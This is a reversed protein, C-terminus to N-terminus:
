AARRAAAAPVWGALVVALAGWDTFRSMLIEVGQRDKRAVRGVLEAAAAEARELRVAPDVWQWRAAVEVPDPADWDEELAPPEPAADKPPAAPVPEPPMGANVWRRRCSRSLVVGAPGHAGAARGCWECCQCVGTVRERARAPGEPPCGARHWRRSCAESLVMGPPGHYEAVRGCRETCQCEGTISV